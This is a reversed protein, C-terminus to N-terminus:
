RRNDEEDLVWVAEALADLDAIGLATAKLSPGGCSLVIDLEWEEIRRHHRVIPRIGDRLEFLLWRRLGREEDVTEVQPEDDYLLAEPDHSERMVRDLDDAPMGRFLNLRAILPVDDLGRLRLFRFDCPLDASAFSTLVERLYRQEDSGEAVGFDQTCAATAGDIWAATEAETAGAVPGPLWAAADYDVAVGVPGATMRPATM